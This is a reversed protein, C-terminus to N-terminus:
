VGPPEALGTEWVQWTSVAQLCMYTMRGDTTRTCSTGTCTHLLSKTAALTFTCVGVSRQVHRLRDAQLARATTQCWRCARCAPDRGWWWSRTRLVLRTLKGRANIWARNSWNNGFFYGKMKHLVICNENSTIAHCYTKKFGVALTCPLHTHLITM